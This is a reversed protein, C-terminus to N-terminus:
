FCRLLNENVAHEWQTFNQICMASLWSVHLTQTNFEIHIAMIKYLTSTGRKKTMVM